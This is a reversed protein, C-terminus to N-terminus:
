AGYERLLQEVGHYKNKMAITLATNEADVLHDVITGKELLARVIDINNKEVAAVLLTKGEKVHNVDAQAHNVLLSILASNKEAEVICWLLENAKCQAIRVKKSFLTEVAMYDNDEVAKKFAQEAYYTLINRKLSKQREKGWSIFVGILDAYSSRALTLLVPTTNHLYSYELLLDLWEYQINKKSCSHTVMAYIITTKEEASLCLADDNLIKEVLEYAVYYKCERITKIIVDLDHALFLSSMTSYLHNVSVDAMLDSKTNCIDIHTYTIFKKKNSNLFFISIFFFFMIIFLRFIGTQKSEMVFEEAM